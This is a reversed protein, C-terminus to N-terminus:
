AALGILVTNDCSARLEAVPVRHILMVLRDRQILTLPPASAIARRVADAVREAAEVQRRAALTQTHAARARIMERYTTSTPNRRHARTARISALRQHREAAPEPHLRATM